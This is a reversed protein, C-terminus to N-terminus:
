LGFCNCVLAFRGILFLPFESSEKRLGFINIYFHNCYQFLLIFYYFYVTYPFIVQGQNSFTASPSPSSPPSNNRLIIESLVPPTVAIQQSLTIKKEHLKLLSGIWHCRSKGGKSFKPSTHCKIMTLYILRKCQQLRLHHKGILNQVTEWKKCMERIENSTLSSEAEKAEATPIETVEQQQSMIMWLLTPPPALLWLCQKVTIRCRKTDWVIQIALCSM